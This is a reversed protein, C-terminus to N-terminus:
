NIAVIQKICQQTAEANTTNAIISECLGIYNTLLAEVEKVAAFNVHCSPPLLAKINALNLQGWTLKNGIVCHPNVPSFIIEKEDRKPNPDIYLEKVIILAHTMLMFIQLCLNSLKISDANIGANLSALSALLFKLYDPNCNSMFKNDMRACAM